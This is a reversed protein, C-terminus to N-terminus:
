QNQDKLHKKKKKKPFLPLSEESQLFFVLLLSVFGYLAQLCSQPCLGHPPCDKKDGGCGERIIDDTRVDGRM